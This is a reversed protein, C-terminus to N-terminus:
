AKGFKKNCYPCCISNYEPEGLVVLELNNLRNDDKVKNKHRVTENPRLERGLLKEMVLRHEPIYGKKNANQNEPSYVMIYGSQSDKYRGGKWFPNNPGSRDAEYPRPERIEFRAAWRSVTTINVGCEEAIESITLEEKIYKRCLWDKKQYPKEM